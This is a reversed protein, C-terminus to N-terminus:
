IVLGVLAGLAFGIGGTLLYGDRTCTSFGTGENTLNSVVTCFAAGAAAGIAGGILANRVRPTGARTLPTMVGFDALPPPSWPSLVPDALLSAPAQAIAPAPIVCLCAVVFPGIRKWM